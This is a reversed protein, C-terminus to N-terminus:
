SLFDVAVGVGAALRRALGTHDETVHAPLARGPHVAAAAAAAIAREYDAAMHEVTHNAAWHRRAAAGLEGRLTADLALRRMAIALSHDEDLIDIAVAIAEERRWVRNADAAATAAVQVEWTRPDLTPLDVLHALDNVVAPKGAALARIWPGSAERNTPWRLCLCVDAARIERDFAEDDVWGTVTVVDEVAHARLDAGLDYYPAVDGVLRLRAHPVVARIAGLARLIQPVRKEPTVLGFAAFTVAGAGTPLQANPTGHDKARPGQDKVTSALLDPAGHRVVHVDLGPHAARMEAALEPFHVAVARAAALPVGTFPWIPAGPNGLGAIIWDAVGAPADPHDFRFEARLDATRGRVLLAKARSQHLQADHLVVLGPYRTLYAWMYDHCAANGLQYVIVDFPRARHLPAFDYV